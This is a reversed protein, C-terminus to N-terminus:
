QGIVVSGSSGNRLLTLPRDILVSEDYHGPAIRISGGEFAAFPANAMFRLPEAQTGLEYGSHASDVYLPDLFTLYPRLLPEVQDLRGGSNPQTFACVPDQAICSVIAKVRSTNDSEFAHFIPAGDAGPELRGDEICVILYNNSSLCVGSVIRVESRDLNGSKVLNAYRMHSGLPHFYCFGPSDTFFPTPWDNTSVPLRTGEPVSDSRLGILTVDRSVDSVIVTAARVQPLSSLDPLEGDPCTTRHFGFIAIFNDINADTAGCHTATLFVLGSNFGGDQEVLSGTCQHCEPGDCSMWTAVMRYDEAVTDCNADLDCPAPETGRPEIEDGSYSSDTGRPEEANFGRYGCVLRSMRVAAVESDPDSDPPIRYELVMESAFLIPSWFTGTPSPERLFPGKVVDPRLPNYAILEAGSPPNWNDIVLRIWFAGPARVRVTWLRSGDELDVSTGDLRSDLLFPQVIAVRAPGGSEADEALLTQRDLLAAEVMPIPARLTSM